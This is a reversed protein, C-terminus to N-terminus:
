QRAVVITVSGSLRQQEVPELILNMVNANTSMTIQADGDDFKYAFLANLPPDVPLLTLNGAGEDVQYPGSLTADVRGALEAVENYDITLEFNSAEDFAFLVDDIILNTTATKDGANDRLSMLKWTGVFPNPDNKGADTSDCGLTGVMLMILIGTGFAKTQM